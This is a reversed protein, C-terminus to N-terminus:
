TELSSRPRSDAGTEKWRAAPQARAMPPRFEVDGGIRGDALERAKPQVSAMSSLSSCTFFPGVSPLHFYTSYFVGRCDIKKRQKIYLVFENRLLLPQSLFSTAPLIGSSLQRSILPTSLEVTFVNQVECWLSTRSYATVSTWRVLSIWLLFSNKRNNFCPLTCSSPSFIPMSAEFPFHCRFRPLQFFSIKSNTFAVLFFKCLIIVYVLIDRNPAGDLFNPCVTGTCFLRHAPLYSLLLLLHLDDLCAYLDDACFRAPSTRFILSPLGHRSCFALCCRPHNGCLTKDFCGSFLGRIRSRAHSIGHFHGTVPAHSM